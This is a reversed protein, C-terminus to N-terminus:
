SDFNSTFPVIANQLSELQNRPSPTGGQRLRKQLAPYHLASASSMFISKQSSIVLTLYLTNNAHQPIAAVM